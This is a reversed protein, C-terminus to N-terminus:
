TGSKGDLKAPEAFQMRSEEFFAACMAITPAACLSIRSTRIPFSIPFPRRPTVATTQPAAFAPLACKM